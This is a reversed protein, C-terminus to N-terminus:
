KNYLVQEAYLLEAIIHIAAYLFNNINANDGMGLGRCKASTKGTQKGM